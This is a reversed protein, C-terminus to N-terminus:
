PPTGESVRRNLEEAFAWYSSEAKRFFVQRGAEQRAMAGIEVLASIEKQVSTRPVPQCQDVIQQTDLLEDGLAALRSAITLRHESNFFYKALRQRSDLTPM